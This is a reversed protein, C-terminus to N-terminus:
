DLIVFENLPAEQSCVDQIESLLTKNRTLIKWKLNSSILLECLSAPQGPIEWYAWDRLENTALVPNDFRAPLYTALWFNALRDGSPDTLDWFLIPVDKNGHNLIQNVSVSGPSYWGGLIVSQPKFTSTLDFKIWPSNNISWSLLVLPAVMIFALIRPNKSFDRIGYALLFPFVSILAIWTFKAPYYNWYNSNDQLSALYLFTLLSTCLVGALYGMQESKDRFARWAFFFTFAFLIGLLLKSPPLTIAGPSKVYNSAVGKEVLPALNLCSLLISFVAASQIPRNNRALSFIMQKTSKSLLLFSAIPFIVLVTWTSAILPILLFLSVLLFSKELEDITKLLLWGALIFLQLTLSAFLAPYFGDNLGVKSVLGGLPLFAIVGISLVRLPHHEDFISKGIQVQLLSLLILVAATMIGISAIDLTLSNEALDSFIELGSRTLAVMADPLVPYFASSSANLGEQEIMFRSFWVHNRADGSMAFAMSGWGFRFFSMLIVMAITISPLLYLFERGLTLYRHKNRELDGIKPIRRFLIISLFIPIVQILNSALSTFVNLGLFPILFLSAEYWFLIFSLVSIFAIESRIRQKVLTFACLFVPLVLM